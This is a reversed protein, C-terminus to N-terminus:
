EQAKLDGKIFEELERVCMDLEANEFRNVIGEKELKDESFDEDDALFRRCMEAYKPVEQKRERKLARQLREGDDVEIYLAVARAEGFYDRLAIFQELTGIILYNKEPDLGDDVTFYRWPGLVTEYVRTEIVKGAAKLKEFGEEDTFHYEKGETEGRRIPRTTYSVIKELGLEGNDLLRRFIHDKGTASKGMVCFIRGMVAENASREAM